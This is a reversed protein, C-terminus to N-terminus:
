QNTPWIASVILLVLYIVPVVLGLAFIKLEDSM